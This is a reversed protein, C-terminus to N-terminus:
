YGVMTIESKYWEIWEKQVRKLVRKQLSTLSEDNVLKSFLKISGNFDETDKYNELYMIKENFEETEM